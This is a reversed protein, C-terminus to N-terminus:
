LMAMQPSLETLLDPGFKMLASSFPVLISSCRTVFLSVDVIYAFTVASIKCQEIFINSWAWDNLTLSASVSSVGPCSLTADDSALNSVTCISIILSPAWFMKHLGASLM